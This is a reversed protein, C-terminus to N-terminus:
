TPRLPITSSQVRSALNPRGAKDLMREVSKKTLLSSANPGLLIKVLLKELSLDPASLDPIPQLKFKLKPEVGRPGISYGLWSKLLGRNDRDSLYLVRWEQEERFGNHKTSLAFLKIVEFAAYAAVYLQDDPLNASALITAWANLLHDIMQIREATSAYSVKVSLLPSDDVRSTAASDFILAVGKGQGGYGRWMSLLGDTDEPPHETLCFVYTDFAHDNEFQSYFQQFAERLSQARIPSGAAEDIVRLQLFQSQGQVLGFRMEDLDNMFLPNSFWVEENKVIQEFV